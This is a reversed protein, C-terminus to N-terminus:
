VTLGCIQTIAEQWGAPGTQTTQMVGQTRNLEPFAYVPSKIQVAVDALELMAIDNKGDGLAISSISTNPFQLEYHQRLWLMASGKNAHGCIHLFRGGQVPMAGHAQIAAIFDQKQQESGLWHLPEGFLRQKAMDAQALTLGTLKAIDQGSLHAFQLYCDGWTSALSNLINLWHERPEAFAKVYYDEQRDCGQPQTKCSAIPFYVAAGNEIIFPADLGLDSHIQEVEVKTKSTNIVIPIARQQCGTIAPLAAQYSYNNHDLLTGDLDTFIIYQTSV